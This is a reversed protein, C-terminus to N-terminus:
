NYTYTSKLMYALSNFKCVQEIDNLVALDDRLIDAIPKTKMRYRYILDPTLNVSDLWPAQACRQLKRQKDRQVKLFQNRMFKRKRDFFMRQNFDTTGVENTKDGESSDSTKLLSSSYFSSFSSNEM